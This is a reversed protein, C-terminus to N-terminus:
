PAGAPRTASVQRRSLEEIRRSLGDVAASLVMVQSSSPSEEQRAPPELEALAPPAGPAGRQALGEMMAHLVDARMDPMAGVGLKALIWAVAKLIHFFPARQFWIRGESARRPWPKRGSGATAPYFVRGGRIAEPLLDIGGASLGGASGGAFVQAADVEVALGAVLDLVVVCTVPRYLDVELRTRGVQFRVIGSWPHSLLLLLPQRGRLNLSAGARGIMGPVFQGGVGIEPNRTWPGRVPLQYAPTWSLGARPAYGLIIVESGQSKAGRRGTSVLKM